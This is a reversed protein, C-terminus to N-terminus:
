PLAQFVPPDRRDPGPGPRNLAMPPMRGCARKRRAGEPPVAESHCVPLVGALPSWSALFRAKLALGRREAGIELAALLLGAAARIARLRFIRRRRGAICLSISGHDRGCAM